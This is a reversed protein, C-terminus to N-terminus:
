IARIDDPKFESRASLLLRADDVKIKLAPVVFEGSMPYMQRFEAISEVCLISTLEQLRGFKIRVPIDTNQAFFSVLRAVDQYFQTAGLISFKSRGGGGAAVAMLTRELRLAIYDCLISMFSRSTDQTTIKNILYLLLKLSTVFARMYPDNVQYDAFQTESIDFDVNEIVNIFPSIFSTRLQQLLFKICNTHVDNLESAIVDVMLLCQKFMAKSKEGLTKMVPNSEFSVLCDSKFRTIYQTTLAINGVAHPLSDKSYIRVMAGPSEDRRCQYLIQLPHKSDPASLKGLSVGFIRKSYSFSADLYEKYETQLTTTINNLVACASNSDGTLIARDMAKKFIYFSDDVISTYMTDEDDTDVSDDQLARTILASMLSQEGSVYVGTIEEIVQQLSGPAPSRPSGHGSEGKDLLSGVYGSFRTCRMVVTVLEELCFDLDRILSESTQESTKLKSQCNNTVKMLGRIVRVAHANAEYEIQQLFVKFNESGFEADIVHQYKQVIDAVELFINTVAEVHVPKDDSSITLNVGGSAISPVSNVHKLCRESFENRIMDFYMGLGEDGHGLHFLIRALTEVDASSSKMMTRISKLLREEEKEYRDMTAKDVSNIYGKERYSHVSKVIDTAADFRGTDIAAKLRQDMDTMKSLASLFEKGIALNALTTDLKSVQASLSSARSSLDHFKGCLDQLPEKHISQLETQKAFNIIGSQIGDLSDQYIKDLAKRVVVSRDTVETQKRLLLEQISALETM